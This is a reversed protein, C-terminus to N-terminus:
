TIIANGKIIEYKKIHAVPSESEHYDLVKSLYTEYDEIAGYDGAKLGNNDRDSTKPFGEFTDFGVIKRNYNFPEFM